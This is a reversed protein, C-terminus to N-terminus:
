RGAERWRDALKPNAALYVRRFAEMIEEYPVDAYEGIDRVYEIHPNGHIDTAPLVADATGDFEVLRFGHRVSTARDFSPTAKRWRGDLFMSVYGHYTFLDTGMTERLDDPIRRSRIDAFLLKCPVGARRALAALLVAKQVCFGRGRGLVTSAIYDQESLMPAFPDYRVTDRVFRFLRVALATQTPTGERLQEVIGQIAPHGTDIFRTAALYPGLDEAM